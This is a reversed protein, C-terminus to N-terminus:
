EVRPRQRRSCSSYVHACKLALCRALKVNHDHCRCRRWYAKEVAEVHWHATLKVSVKITAVGPRTCLCRKFLRSLGGKARWLPTAVAAIRM